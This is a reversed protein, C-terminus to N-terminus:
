HLRRRRELGAGTPPLGTPASPRNAEVADLVLDAAWAIDQPRELTLELWDSGSRRLAVRPDNRLEARRRRIETRTLRLDLTRDDDFHAVERKGVWLAPGPRFAGEGIAVGDTRDCCAALFELRSDTM